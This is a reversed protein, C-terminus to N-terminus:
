ISISESAEELAKNAAETAANEIQDQISMLPSWTRMTNGVKDRIRLCLIGQGVERYRIVPKTNVRYQSSYEPPCVTDLPDKQAFYQFLQNIAIQLGIALAADDLGDGELNVNVYNGSKIYYDYYYCGSQGYDSCTITVTPYDNYFYPRNGISPYQTGYNKLPDNITKPPHTIKIDKENDVSPFSADVKLPGAIAYAVDGDKNEVRACLFASEGAIRREVVQFDQTMTGKDIKVEAKGNVMVIKKKAFKYKIETKSLPLHFGGININIPIGTTDLTTGIVNTVDSFYTSGVCNDVIESIGNLTSSDVLKIGPRINYNPDSSVLSISDEAVWSASLGQIELTRKVKVPYTKAGLWFSSDSLFTAGDKSIAEQLKSDMDAPEGKKSLCELWEKNDGSKDRCYIKRKDLLIVKLSYDQYSDKLSPKVTISLSSDAIKMKGDRNELLQNISSAKVSSSFDNFLFGSPPLFAEGKDKSNTLYIAYPGFSEVPLRQNLKINLTYGAGERLELASLAKPDNGITLFIPESIAKREETSFRAVEDGVRNLPVCCVDTKETCAFELASRYGDPCSTGSPYCTGGNDSCSTAKGFWGPVRIVLWIAILLVLLM